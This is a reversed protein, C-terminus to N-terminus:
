WSIDRGNFVAWIRGEHEVVLIFDVDEHKVGDKARNHVYEEIDGFNPLLTVAYGHRLATDMKEPSKCVFLLSEDLYEKDMIAIDWYISSVQKYIDKLQTRFIRVNDM